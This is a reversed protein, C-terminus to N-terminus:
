LKLTHCFDVIGKESTRGKLTFLFFFYVDREKKGTISKSNFTMTCTTSFRMYALSYGYM